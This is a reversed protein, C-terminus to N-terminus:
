RTLQDMVKLWCDLRRMHTGHSPPPTPTRIHIANVKLQQRRIEAADSETAIRAGAAVAAAKVADSGTPLPRTSFSRPRSFPRKPGTPTSDYSPSDIVMPGSGSVQNDQAVVDRQPDGSIAVQDDKTSNLSNASSGHNKVVPGVKANAHAPGLNPRPEKPSISSYVVHTGHPPPPRVTRIHIANVKLQQKRIEAADSETAIRAGAAVAAAKVADMPQASINGPLTTGFPSASKPIDLGPKVVLM